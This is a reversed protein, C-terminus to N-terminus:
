AVGACGQSATQNYAGMPNAQFACPLADSRMLRFADRRRPKLWINKDHGHFATDTGGARAYGKTTGVCTWGAARYMHGTSREREVFTKAFLVPHGYADEWDSSLRRTM